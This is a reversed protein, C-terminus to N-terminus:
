GFTQGNFGWLNPAIDEFSIYIRDGSIGTMMQILQCFENSMQKPELGGISKVEVYCCPGESGGFTMPVNTQLVTMVYREPKGTLKSLKLSLAKLFDEQNPVEPSSVSVNILPM